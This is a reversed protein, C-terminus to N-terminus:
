LITSTTHHVYLNLKGELTSSAVISSLASTSRTSAAFHSHNAYISLMVIHLYEGFFM